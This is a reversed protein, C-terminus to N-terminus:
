SSEDSNILRFSCFTDFIGAISSWESVFCNPDVSARLSTLRWTSCPSTNAEEARVSGAFGRYDVDEEIEDTPGRAPYGDKAIVRFSIWSRDAFAETYKGLCGSEVFPVSGDVM